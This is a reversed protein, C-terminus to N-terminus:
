ETYRVIPHEDNRYYKRYAEKMGGPLKKQMLKRWIWEGLRWLKGRGRMAWWVVSGLKWVDMDEPKSFLPQMVTGLWLLSARFPSTAGTAALDLLGMFGPSRGFWSFFCFLNPHMNNWFNNPKRGLRLVRALTYFKKNDREYQTTDPGDCRVELGHQRMARAFRGDNNMLDFSLRAVHNDMSDYNFLSGPSRRMIGPLFDCEAFVSVLRRAEMHYEVYDDLSKINNSLCMLYEVSFLVGNESVRGPEVTSLGHVDRYPLFHTIIDRVSM